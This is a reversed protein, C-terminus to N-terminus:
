RITAKTFDLPGRKTPDHYIVDYHRGHPFDKEYVARVPGPPTGPVWIDFTDPLLPFELLDGSVSLSNRELNSHHKPYGRRGRGVPRPPAAQVQADAHMKLIVRCPDEEPLNECLWYTGGDKALSTGFQEYGGGDDNDRGSGSGQGVDVTYSVYSTYSVQGTHVTYSPYSTQYATM